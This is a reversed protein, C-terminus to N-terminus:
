FLCIRVAPIGTCRIMWKTFSFLVPVNNQLLSILITSFRIGINVLDCTSYMHGIIFNFKEYLLIVIVTGTVIDPVKESLTYFMTKACLIGIRPSTERIL